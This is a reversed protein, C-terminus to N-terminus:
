VMFGFEQNDKTSRETFVGPLLLMWEHSNTFRTDGTRHTALTFDCPVAPILRCAAGVAGHDRLRWTSAPDASRRWSTGRSAAELALLEAEAGHTFKVANGDPHRPWHLALASHELLM